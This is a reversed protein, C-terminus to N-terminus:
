LTSADLVLLVCTHARKTNRMHLFAHILAACKQLFDSLHIHATSSFIVARGVVETKGGRLRDGIAAM